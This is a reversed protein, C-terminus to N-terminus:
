ADFRVRRLDVVPGEKCFRVYGGDKAPLACCYCLGTGCGMREEVFGWVPLDPMRELIDELMPKPGCAYAVFGKDRGRFERALLDVASGKFGMSGDDTAALVRVGSRRFEPLLILERRNRAGLIAVPKRGRRASKALFLLPAIGVGGGCLLVDGTRPVQVPRGLPGLLNWVDGARARSMWATGTGRVRFVLRLRGARTDAVSIPRRLVPEFSDGVAVNVFQGPRLARALGPERLWVSFIDPALRRVNIVKAQWPRM